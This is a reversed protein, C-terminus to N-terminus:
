DDVVAEFIVCISRSGARFGDNRLVIRGALKGSVIPTM